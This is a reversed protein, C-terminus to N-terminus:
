WKPLWEESIQKISPRLAPDPSVLKLIMQAEILSELKLYTPLKPTQQKLADLIRMQEMQTKPNCVLDALIIGLAYIDLYKLSEFTKLRDFTEPATAEPAM